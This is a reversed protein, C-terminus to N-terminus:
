ATNVLKRFNRQNNRKLCYNVDRQPCWPRQVGTLSRGISETGSFEVQGGREFTKPGFPLRDGGFLKRLIQRTQEIQRSLM